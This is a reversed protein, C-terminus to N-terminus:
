PCSLQGFLFHKRIRKSCLLTVLHELLQQGGVELMLKPTDKTLPM